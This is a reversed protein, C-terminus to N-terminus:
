LKYIRRDRIEVRGQKMLRGVARKFANKSLGFERRIIEPDVRDDFPLVGAYEEIVGMVMEADEDMQLYAKDRVSLDLKGDEKVGTVRARIRDGVKLGSAGERRPILASYKDDVAVFTGFNESLEYVRGSVEDNMAYPSNRYLYPYVRMTACLRGSKDVYLAVLCEEGQRVKATQEHFPLLLDKELGWDLFAGIKAVESVKLVGFKGVTLMPERRTAIMRDKSDRYLFVQLRDGVATGEPVEKKPLLVREQNEKGSLGGAGGGSTHKGRVSGAERVEMRSNRLSGGERVEVRSNLLSGGEAAGEPVEALYIGFDVKKVVELEQKEGVRLM